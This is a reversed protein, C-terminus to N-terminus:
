SQPWHHLLDALQHLNPSQGTRVYYGSTTVGALLSLADNMGLLKGLCFGSNFHDGAGTTIYPKATYPGPVAAVGAPSIAVAYSVPHIVLTQIPVRARIQRGLDGLGDPTHQPEALGLVRAVEIAEKENLGLIVDFYKEFRAVLELARQIDAPLRKEPDALDFFIRRRDGNLQPCLESLITEWVDSAYPIMTWNVFGVLDASKFRDAFGDRSWRQVINEWTIEKLYEHKGVMVKGDHFELADTLGPPAISHVEARRAFEEFVPHLAPWGLNGVYTVKFGLAALANSM